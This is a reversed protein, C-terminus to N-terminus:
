TGGGTPPPGEEAGDGRRDFFAMMAVQEPTLPRGYLRGVYAIALTPDVSAAAGPDTAALEEILRRVTEMAKEYTAGEELWERSINQRWAEPFRREDQALKWLQTSTLGGSVPDVVSAVGSVARGDPDRWELRGGVNVAQAGKIKSGDDLVITERQGFPSAEPGQEAPTVGGGWIGLTPRKPDIQIPADIPTDSDRRFAEEFAAPDGAEHVNLLAQFRPSGGLEPSFLDFAERAASMLADPQGLSSKLTQHFDDYAADFRSVRRTNLGELEQLYPRFQEYVGAQMAQQMIKELDYLELGRSNRTKYPSPDMTVTEAPLLGPEARIFNGAADRETGPPADGRFRSPQPAPGLPTRRFEGGADTQLALMDGAPTGRVDRRAMVRGGLAEAQSRAELQRIQEARLLAQYEREPRERQETIYEDIGRGVNEGFGSWQQQTLAGLKLKGAAQAEAASLTARSRAEPGRGMVDAMSRVYPNVLPQYEFPM